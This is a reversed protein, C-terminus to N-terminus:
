GTWTNGTVPLSSGEDAVRDGFADRDLARRIVPSIM